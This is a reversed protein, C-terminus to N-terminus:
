RFKESVCCLLTGRRFLRASQSLFKRRFIEISGVGGKKEMFKKAGLFKRYCLM